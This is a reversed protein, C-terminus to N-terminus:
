KIAFISQNKETVAPSTIAGAFIPFTRQLPCTGRNSFLQGIPILSSGYNDRTIKRVGVRWRSVYAGLALVLSESICDLRTVVYKWPTSFFYTTVITRQIQVSFKRNRSIPVQSFLLNYRHIRQLHHINYRSEM